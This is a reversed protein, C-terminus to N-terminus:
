AVVKVAVDPTRIWLQQRGLNVNLHAHNFITSGASNSPLVTVYWDHTWTQGAPIMVLGSSDFREHSAEGLGPSFRLREMACIASVIALPTLLNCQELSNRGLTGSPTHWELLFARGRFEDHGINTITMRYHIEDGSRATTSDATM